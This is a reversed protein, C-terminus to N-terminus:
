AKRLNFCFVINRHPIPKLGETEKMFRNTFDRIIEEYKSNIHEEVVESYDEVLKKNKLNYVYFYSM